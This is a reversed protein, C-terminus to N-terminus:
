PVVTGSRRVNTKTGHILTGHTLTGHALTGYAHTHWTHLLAAGPAMNVGNCAWQQGCCFPPAVPLLYVRCTCEGGAWLAQQQGRAHRVKAAALLLKRYMQLRLKRAGAHLQDFLQLAQQNHGGRLM